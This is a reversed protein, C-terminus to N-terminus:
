DRTAMRLSSGTTVEDGIMTGGLNCATSGEAWSVVAWESAKNVSYVCVRSERGRSRERFKASKLSSSATREEDMIEIVDFIRARVSM